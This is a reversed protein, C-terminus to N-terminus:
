AWASTPMTTVPSTCYRRDPIPGCRRVPSRLIHGERADRPESNSPCTSPSVGAHRHGTETGWRGAAARRRELPLQTDQHYLVYQDLLLPTLLQIVGQRQLDSLGIHPSM